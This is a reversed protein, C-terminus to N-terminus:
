TCSLIKSKRDMAVAFTDVENELETVVAPMGVWSGVYDEVAKKHGDIEITLIYEPNDTVSARYADDFSYFDAAIFKHALRRVSSADVSGTRIGKVDVFARGDFM